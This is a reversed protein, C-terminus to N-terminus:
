LSSGKKFFYVVMRQNGQDIIKIFIYKKLFGELLLNVEGQKENKELIKWDGFQLRKELNDIISKTDNPSVLRLYAEKSNYFGSKLDLSLIFELSEPLIARPFAPPISIPKRDLQLRDFSVTEAELSLALFLLILFRM